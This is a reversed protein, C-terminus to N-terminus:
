LTNQPRYIIYHLSLLHSQAFTRGTKPATNDTLRQQHHGGAPMNLLTLYLQENTNDPRAVDCFNSDRQNQVFHSCVIEFTQVVVHEQLLIPRM